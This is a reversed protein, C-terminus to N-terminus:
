DISRCDTSQFVSKDSSQSFDTLRCVFLWDVSHATSIITVLERYHNDQHAHEVIMSLKISSIISTEEFTNPFSEEISGFTSRITPLIRSSTDPGVNKTEPISIVRFQYLLTKERIKQLRSNRIKELNFIPVLPKHDVSILLDLCGLVFMRCGELGVLVALAEGEIPAYRSEADSTFRSGTYVVRRHDPGCLPDKGPCHCHKQSLTFGIGTKSWDTDLCTTRNISFSRIGDQSQSLSLLRVGNSFLRYLIM